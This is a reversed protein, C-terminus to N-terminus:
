HVIINSKIASSETIEDPNGLIPFINSIKSDSTTYLDTNQYQIKTDQTYAADSKQSLTMSYHDTNYDDGKFYQFHTM